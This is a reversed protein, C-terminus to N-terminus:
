TRWKGGRVLETVADAFADPAEQPLNHGVGPIQRYTRPGTFRVASAQGDTAPVVGDATSDLTIAPVSIAPLAALKKETAEHLPYGPALGLRRPLPSATAGSALRGASPSAFSPAAALVTAGAIGARLFARRSSIHDSM